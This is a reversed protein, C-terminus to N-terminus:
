CFFKNKLVFVFGVSIKSFFFSVCNKKVIQSCSNCKYKFVRAFSLTKLYTLLIKKSLYDQKVNCCQQFILMWRMWYRYPVEDVIYLYLFGGSAQSSSHSICSPASSSRKGSPQPACCPWCAWRLSRRRRYPLTNVSTVKQFGASYPIERQRSKEKRPSLRFKGSNLEASNRKKMYPIGYLYQIETTFENLYGKEFLFGFSFKFVNIKCINV